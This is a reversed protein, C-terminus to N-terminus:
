PLEEPHLFRSDLLHAPRLDQFSRLMAHRVGPFHQELEAVHRELWARDGGADLAAQYDCAGTKPPFAFTAAAERILSKPTECLPRILRKRGSDAATHPAMTKLGAGRFLSMLFSACLDDLHQGLALVNCDLRDMAAHLQGRRLRSCLPCPREGANKAELIDRGPFRILEHEWGQARCYATIADPNFQAFGMDVTAARVTFPVPARRRLRELLHMLLLSDMGGSVGVLLRDGPRIMAYRRVSVGAQHCVAAFADHKRVPSPM